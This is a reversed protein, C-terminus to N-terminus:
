IVTETPTCLGPLSKKLVRYEYFAVILEGVHLVELRQGSSRQYDQFYGVGSRLQGIYGAPGNVAISHYAAVRIVVGGLEGFWVRHLWGRGARSVAAARTIDGRGTTM